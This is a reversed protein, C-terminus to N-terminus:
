SFIKSFVVIRDIGGLDRYSDCMKFGNELFIKKVDNKQGKGIELFIKTNPKLHKSISKAIKRYFFLGDNGGNLAILPNHKNVEPELEAIENTPIYPPNSVILDFTGTIEDILNTKKFDIATIDLLKANKAAVDLAKESIDTAIATANKYLKLLTLALCGSGTCIDLIKIKEDRNKYNKLVAEILTESDNRPTLVNSNVYFEYDWFFKKNIINAIPERNKRRELKKNFEELPAQDIENDLHTILDNSDINLTHCLLIKVDLKATDINSNELLQISNKFLELIKM